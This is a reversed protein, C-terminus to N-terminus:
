RVGEVQIELNNENDLEKKIKVPNIWYKDQLPIWFHWMMDDYTSGTGYLIVERAPSHFREIILNRYNFVASNRGFLFFAGFLTILCLGIMQLTLQEEPSRM